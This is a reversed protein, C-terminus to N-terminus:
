LCITEGWKLKSSTTLESPDYCKFHRINGDHMLGIITSWDTAYEGFSVQAVNPCSRIIRTTAITLFQPSNMIDATAWGEFSFHFALPRNVPYDEEYESLNIVDLRLKINRNEVLKQAVAKTESICKEQESVETATVPFNPICSLSLAFLGIIVKHIHM